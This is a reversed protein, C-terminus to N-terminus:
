HTQNQYAEGMHIDRRETSYVNDELSDNRECRRWTRNNRPGTFPITLGCAVQIESSLKMQFHFGSIWLSVRSRFGHFTGQSIGAGEREGAVM